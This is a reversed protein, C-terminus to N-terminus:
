DKNPEIGKQQTKQYEIHTRRYEEITYTEKTGTTKDPTQEMTKGQQKEATAKGQKIGEFYPSTGKMSKLLTELVDRSEANQQLRWGVNFGKIEDFQEM